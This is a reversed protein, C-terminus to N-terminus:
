QTKGFIKVIVTDTDIHVDKLINYRKRGKCLNRDSLLTNSIVTDELIKAFANDQPDHM